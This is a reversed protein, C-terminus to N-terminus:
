SFKAVCHPYLRGVFSRPIFAGEVASLDAGRSDEKAEDEEVVDAFLVLRKPTVVKGNLLVQLGGGGGSRVALRGKRQLSRSKCLTCFLFDVSYSIRLSTKVCVREARVPSSQRGRRKRQM